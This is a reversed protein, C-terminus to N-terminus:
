QFNYQYAASYQWVNDNGNCDEAPLKMGLPGFILHNGNNSGSDLALLPLYTAILLTCKICMAEDGLGICRFLIIPDSSLVDAYADTVGASTEEYVLYDFPTGKQARDHFIGGNFAAVM